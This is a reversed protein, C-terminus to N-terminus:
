RAVPTVSREPSCTSASSTTTAHPVSHVGRKSIRDPIPGAACRASRPDRNGGVQGYARGQAVMEARRDRVPVVSGLRAGAARCLRQEDACGVTDVDIVMRERDRRKGDVTAGAEQQRHEQEAGAAVARDPEPGSGVGVGDDRQWRERGVSAVTEPVREVLEDRPLTGVREPRQTGFLEVRDVEGGGVRDLKGQFAVQQRVRM